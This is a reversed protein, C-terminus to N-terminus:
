RGRVAPAQRPRTNATADQTLRDQHGPLPEDTSHRQDCAKIPPGGTAGDFEGEKVGRIFVGMAACSYILLPGGPHRSNRVAIRGDALPAVEFCSGCPNSYRSKRWTVAPVRSTTLNDNIRQMVVSEGDEAGLSPWAATVPRGSIGCCDQWHPRSM